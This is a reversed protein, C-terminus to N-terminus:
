ADSPKRREHIARCEPCDLDHEAIRRLAMVQRAAEHFCSQKCRCPEAAVELLMVLLDDLTYGAFTMASDAVKDWSFRHATM